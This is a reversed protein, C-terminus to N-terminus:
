RDSNTGTADTAEAAPADAPPTEAPPQEPPKVDKAVDTKGKSYQDFNMLLDVLADLQEVSDGHYLEQAVGGKYEANADYPINVPMATYPLKTKPNAIWERLYDPRFRRYVRTLDPAMARPSPKTPTGMGPVYNGVIHCKVCYNNSTVIKMADDFRTSEENNRALRSQYNSEAHALYSSQRRDAFVYPYDANDVAAFYASLKTAEDRSMNFKPMRLFVAPRIPYPELLFEHLWESQV